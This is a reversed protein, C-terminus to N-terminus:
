ARPLMTSLAQLEFRFHAEIRALDGPLDTLWGAQLLRRAPAPLPHIRYPPDEPLDLSQCIMESLSLAATLDQGDDVDASHHQRVAAVVDDPLDWARLLCAGVDAHDRGFHAREWALQHAAHRPAETSMPQPDRALLQQFLLSGIDHLLGAVLARPGHIELRPALAQMCVSVALSHIQFRRSAGLDRTIGLICSSAVIRQIRTLGILSAATFVDDVAPGGLLHAARNAQSLVHGTLVPDRQVHETLERLHGHEDRLDEMLALVIPLSAPLDGLHGVIIDDTLTM